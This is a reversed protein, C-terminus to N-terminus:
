KGDKNETNIQETNIETSVVGDNRCETEKKGRIKALTPIGKRFILLFVVGVTVCSDAINFVPFYTYNIFGLHIDPIDVQVFDIVRGYFIPAYNFIVGYFVRDILNGVAGALILAIGTKIWVSYDKIKYLYWILGISAIISFLSLIIKAAGFSIGFAMGENEVYTFQLFNGIIKINQYNSMSYGEGTHAIGFYQKILIKTIQDLIILLISIIFFIAIRNKKMIKGYLFPVNYWHGM